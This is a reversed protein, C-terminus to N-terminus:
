FRFRRISLRRYFCEIFPKGPFFPLNFIIVEVTALLYATTLLKMELEIGLRPSQVAMQHHYLM